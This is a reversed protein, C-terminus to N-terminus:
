YTNRGLSTQFTNIINSLTTMEGSSLQRGFHAFIINSPNAIGLNGNSNGIYHTKNTFAPTQGGNVQLVGNKTGLINTGTSSAIFYGIGQQTPQSYTVYGSGSSKVNPIFSNTSFSTYIGVEIVGATTDTSGIDQVAKNSLNTTYLSISQDSAASVVLSADYYTDAYTSVGGDTTMGSSSHSWGGVFTLRYAGNTDVPNKANLKHSNAVSGMVPYMADIKTYLGNSKLDTFLTNIAAQQTGNLTGGNAIVANIYNTADTDYIEHVAFGALTSTLNSINVTYTQGYENYPSGQLTVSDNTLQSVLTTGSYFQTTSSWIQSGTSPGVIVKIRNYYGLGYNCLEYNSDINFQFDYITGPSPYSIPMVNSLSTSSYTTNLPYTVGNFTISFTGGTIAPSGCNDSTVVGATNYIPYINRSFASQLTNARQAFSDIETPSLYTSAYNLLANGGITYLNLGNVRFLNIDYPTSSPTFTTTQLSSKTLGTSIDGGNFLAAVYWATSGSRSVSNWVGTKTRADLLNNGGLTSWFNTIGDEQIWDQGLIMYNSTNTGIGQYQYATLPYNRDSIMYGFSFNTETTSPSASSVIFGSEAYNADNQTTTSGTVSHTWTGQFSLNYTGPNKANIANSGSTGGFFLHLYYFKSYTGDTKLGVFFTNIATRQPTTLSGGAALVANIYTTADPDLPSSPTASPTPTPTPTIASPTSTPTISPTPTPTETNTPTVSATISPTPTSTNTPTITITPTPTVSATISPTPTSTNTPTVTATITPTISPTPTPTRTLTPTPTPTVPTPSPGPSDPVFSTIIDDIARQEGLYSSFRKRYFVQAM